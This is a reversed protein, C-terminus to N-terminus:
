GCIAQGSIDRRGLEGEPLRQKGWSGRHQEEPDEALHTIASRLIPAAMLSTIIAVLVIITYTATNLIGLRPGVTAVIVQVVGRANMSAGLTIGEWHNLRSLRAGLYAGTFKGIIAVLLVVIACMLVTPAALATLDIRLGASALFLPALVSMVLARLPALKEPSAAQSSSILIGALFAGFIPEMKLAHTLSELKASKL